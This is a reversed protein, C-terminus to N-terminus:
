RPDKLDDRIEKNYAILQHRGEYMCMETGIAQGDVYDDEGADELHTVDIGYASPCKRWAEETCRRRCYMIDEKAM